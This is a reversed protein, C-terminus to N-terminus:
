PRAITWDEIQLDRVREFERVNHTVLVYNHALAIGAILVDYGGIRAGRNELDARIMGSKEASASDLEVLQVSSCFARFQTQSKHPQNSRRVGFTLEAVTVTSILIQERRKEALRVIVAPRRARLLEISIDTDLLYHIV